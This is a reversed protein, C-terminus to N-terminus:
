ILADDYVARTGGVYKPRWRACLIHAQGIHDLSLRVPVAVPELHMGILTGGIDIGAHAQGRLSEALVPTKFGAWAAMGFSGGAHLQPIANVQTLRYAKLTSKEMVLARNLHECCQVALLIGCAQLPAYIGEFLANALDPSSGTGIKKGAAESTSCGVVFLDGEELRARELLDTVAQRAQCAIEEFM